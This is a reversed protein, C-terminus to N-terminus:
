HTENTESVDFQYKFNFMRSRHTGVVCDDLVVDQITSLAAVIGHEDDAEIEINLKLMLDAGARQAM